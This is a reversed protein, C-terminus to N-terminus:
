ASPVSEKTRSAQIRRYTFAPPPGAAESQALAVLERHRSSKNCAPDTQAADGTFAFAQCRCGGWDVEKFECSRCPEPMWDTGRFKNFADSNLWIDRLRRERVNDFALGEISEAAHCPLVRGSPTVNLFRRGWGGMCPKPRAAYYDPVVFDITLVGKLREQAREVVDASWMTQERTPMLAARNVYAWGYYQIHAVELRAADLELALEIIAELSSINQRHMPANLTLPLDLERVWRAFTMKKEHGQKYAAIRDANQPEADQISLQVHDLGCEALGELRERSALVGATILNSYLGLRAAEAILDELDRRVTPEGGSFHIQLVGMDAAQRLVDLWEETSLEVNARDLALPNSCYPCQLPCRHTLEALLGEPGRACIVDLDTEASADTM